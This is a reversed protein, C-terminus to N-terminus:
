SLAAGGWAVDVHPHLPVSVGVRLIKSGVELGAAGGFEARERASMVWSPVTADIHKSSSHGRQAQLGAFSSTRMM